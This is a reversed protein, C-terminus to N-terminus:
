NGIPPLEPRHWSAGAQGSADPCVCVLYPITSRSTAGRLALVLKRINREIRALDPATKRSFREPRVWDEFRVLIVNMGEENTSLLSSPDLLQQFVQNYPVFEAKLPLHLKRMWFATSTRLPEATFTAAIAIVPNKM